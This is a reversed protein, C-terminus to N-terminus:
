RRPDGTQLRSQEISESVQAQPALWDICGEPNVGIGREVLSIFSPPIWCVLQDAISPGLANGRLLAVWTDWPPTNDVDFFGMTAQEAAGDALQLDPFYVLPRGGALADVGGPGPVDRLHRSRSSIVSRVTSQRNAELIWPKLSVSRLSGLPDAPNARPSCWAIAEALRAPFAVSEGAGIVSAEVPMPDAM